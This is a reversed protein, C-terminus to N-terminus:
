LAQKLIKHFINIKNFIQCVNEEYINRIYRKQGLIEINRSGYRVQYRLGPLSAGM